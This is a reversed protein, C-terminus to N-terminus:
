FFILDYPLFSVRFFISYINGIIAGLANDLSGYFILFLLAFYFYREYRMIQWYIRNPLIAFLVKSGDLPPIPILNFVALNINLITIYQLVLLIFSIVYSLFGETAFGTLVNIVTLTVMLFCAVFGCILNSLPGAMAVIAMDRKPKNFYRSDVQVPRAAGFGILIMSLIGIYDLHAKPNLTMRGQYKPTPDGLKTAAFGHAFEHVPMVFFLVIAVSFLYSIISFLDARNFILGLLGM